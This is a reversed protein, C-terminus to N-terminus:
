KNSALGASAVNRLYREQQRVYGPDRSDGLRKHVDQLVELPFDYKSLLESIENAILDSESQLENKPALIEIARPGVNKIYGKEQLKRLINHTTSSSKHGIMEALERVTPAYGHDTIHQKLIDLAQRQKNSLKKM